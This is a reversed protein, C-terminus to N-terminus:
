WWADFMMMLSSPNHVVQRSFAWLESNSTCRRSLKHQTWVVTFSLFHSNFWNENTTILSTMASWTLIFNKPLPSQNLTVTDGSLFSNLGPDCALSYAGLTPGTEDIFWLSGWWQLSGLPACPLHECLRMGQGWGEARLHCSVVGRNQQVHQPMTAPMEPSSYPWIVPTLCAICVTVWYGSPLLLLIM